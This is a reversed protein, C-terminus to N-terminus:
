AGVDKSAERLQDVMRQLTALETTTLTRGTYRGQEILNVITTIPENASSAHQTLILGYERISTSAPWVLGQRDGYRELIRAAQTLPDPPPIRRRLLFIALITGAIALLSAVLVLPWPTPQPAPLPVPQISAEQAIGRAPLPRVPTPEYAVWHEGIYLEPWAHADSEHITYSGDSGLEGTAYGIAVRAPIGISRAMIVMASAYYTCYGSRMDFLFQDVADSERNLPQVEYRYPLERLYTELAIARSQDDARNGVIARALERVRPPLDRPVQLYPKLDPPERDRAPLPAQEALRSLITYQAVIPDGALAALSGDEFREARTSVSVAIIDPMGVLLQRDTRLDVVHQIIAGEFAGDTASAAQPGVRAIAAWGVGSYSDFVRERWYHPAPGPLLPTNLTIRLALQELPGQAISQGLELSPLTSLGITSTQDQSSAHEIGQQLAAVGSPVVALNEFIRAIPNGPWLPLAWAATLGVIALLSAWLAVDRGLEDSYDTGNREWTQQNRQFGAVAVFVLALGLGLALPWGGGGGPVAVITLAVLMPLILGHIARGSGVARGLLLAGLWTLTVGVAGILLRAGQQGGNPAANLDALLRMASNNLFDMSRIPPSNPLGQYRMIVGTLDQQMLSIPPLAAGVAFLLIVFGAAWATAHALTRAASTFRTRSPIPAAGDAGILVGFLAAWFFPEAPPTLASQAVALAPTLAYAIALMTAFWGVVPRRFITM